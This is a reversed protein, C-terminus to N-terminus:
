FPIDEKSPDDYNDEPPCPPGQDDMTIKGKYYKKKNKKDLLPEGTNRDTAMWLGAKYKTGNIEFLVNLAPADPNPTVNKFLVMRMNNDYGM